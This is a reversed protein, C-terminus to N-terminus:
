VPPQSRSAWVNASLWSLNSVAPAGADDADRSVIQLPEILERRIGIEARAFEGDGRIFAELDGIGIIELGRRGLGAGLIHAADFDTVAEDLADGEHHALIVLDRRHHRRLVVLDFGVLVDELRQRHYLM